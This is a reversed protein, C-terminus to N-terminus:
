STVFPDAADHQGDIVDILHDRAQKGVAGFQDAFHHL